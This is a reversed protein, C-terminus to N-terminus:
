EKWSTYCLPQLTLEPSLGWSQALLKVKGQDKWCLVLCHPSM